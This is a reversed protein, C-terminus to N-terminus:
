RYACAGRAYDVLPSVRHSASRVSRCRQDLKLEGVTSDPGAARRWLAEKARFLNRMISSSVDSVGFPQFIEMASSSIPRGYVHRCMLSDSFSCFASHYTFSLGLPRM